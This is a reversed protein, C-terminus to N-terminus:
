NRKVVHHALTATSQQLLVLKTRTCLLDSQSSLFRFKVKICICSHSYRYKCCVVVLLAGVTAQIM